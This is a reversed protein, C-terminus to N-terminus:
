GIKQAFAIIHGDPDAFYCVMDGWDRAEMGSILTAGASLANNFELAIDNVELYVECRPIGTGLTPHPMTTLIKQIGYNPMLGFKFQDNIKFETIGPVELDPKKRFLKSYFLTSAVQDQVYLITEVHLIHNM